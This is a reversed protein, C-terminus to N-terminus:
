RRRLLRYRGLCGEVRDWPECGDQATIRCRWGPFTFALLAHSLRSHGQLSFESKGSLKRGMLLAAGYLGWWCGLNWGVRQCGGVQAGDKIM